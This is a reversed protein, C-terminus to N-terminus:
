AANQQMTERRFLRVRQPLANFRGSPFWEERDIGLDDALLDVVSELTGDALWRLYWRHCTQFPPYVDRPLSHWKAHRTMVWLIAELVKRPDNWPRGRNDVRRPLPPLAKAVREWQPDTLERFEM